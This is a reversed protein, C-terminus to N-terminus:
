FSVGVDIKYKRTHQQMLWRNGEDICAEGGGGLAAHRANTTPMRACHTQVVYSVATTVAYTQESFWRKRGVNSGSSIRSVILVTPPNATRPPLLESTLVVGNASVTPRNRSHLLTDPIVWARVGPSANEDRPRCAPPTNRRGPSRISCYSSSDYSGTSAIRPPGLTHIPTLHNPVGWQVRVFLSRYDVTM